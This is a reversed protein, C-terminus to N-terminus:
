KKFLQVIEYPSAGAQRWRKCFDRCLDYQAFQQKAAKVDHYVKWYGTYLSNQGKNEIYGRVDQLPYGLFLGIEHPFIRAKGLKELLVQLARDPHESYGFQMLYSRSDVESLINKVLQSNYLYVLISQNSVQVPVCVLQTTHLLSALAKRDWLSRPIRFLSGAKQGALTSSAHKLIMDCLMATDELKTIKEGVLIPM